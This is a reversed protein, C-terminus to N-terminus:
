LKYFTAINWMMMIEWNINYKLLYKIILSYLDHKKKTKVTWYKNEM